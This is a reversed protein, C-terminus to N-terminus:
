AVLLGAGYLAVGAGAVRAIWGAHRRLFLGAGIGLGHLVMTAVAFGGVYALM